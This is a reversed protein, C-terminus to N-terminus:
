KISKMYILLIFIFISSILYQFSKLSIDFSLIHEEIIHQYSFILPVFILTSVLIISMAYYIIKSLM